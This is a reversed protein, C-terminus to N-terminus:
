VSRDDSTSDVYEEIIIETERRVAEDVAKQLKVNIESMKRVHGAGPILDIFHFANVEDVVAKAAAHGVDFVYFVKFINCCM